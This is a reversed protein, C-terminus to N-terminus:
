PSFDRQILLYLIQKHVLRFYTQKLYHYYNNSSLLEGQLKKLELFKLRFFLFLFLLHDLLKLHNFSILPSFHSTPNTPAYQMRGFIFKNCVIYPRARHGGSFANCKRNLVTRKQWRSLLPSCYKVVSFLHLIILDLKHRTILVLILNKYLYNIIKFCYQLFTHLSFQM